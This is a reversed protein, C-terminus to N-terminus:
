VVNSLTAELLQCRTAFDATIQKELEDCLAMLEEVKAVIRNQEAFPPLPIPANLLVSQSIKPMSSSAGTALESFYRRLPPSILVMHIFRLVLIDSFRIRIMLDPFVFSQPPGDFVAAMGVYERTNGRQILMDGPSLWYNECDAKTLEVHKYHASQLYGSTTATLTLAKPARVDTTPKPSAGNQPGFTILMSVRLWQWTKPIVFPHSYTESKSFASQKKLHGALFATQQEKVILELMDTTKNDGVEQPVLKGRVALNLITQRLQHVHEPRTSLRQLHNFYFRASEKFSLKEKADSDIEGNNLGHLTASVLRDRRKESKAQTSELEDCLAMLENVKGVIRHQEFLPPLPLILNELKGKTIHQLGVGGHAKDIMEDLQGNIAIKLFKDFFANGIQFCKFIHQNLAAKGREWIYAGFSTGPTGSWSILFSGSNILHKAQVQREECFNFPAKTDNLNQIRVIPLGVEQWETPKFARGNIMELCDGIRIWSWNTPCRFPEETKTILSLPKYSQRREKTLRVKETEIRKLLNSAPEDEPNQEVLKGRVALDLIFKRLCPIADPTDAIRDFHKLLMEASM